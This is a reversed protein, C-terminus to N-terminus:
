RSGALDGYLDAGGPGANGRMGEGVVALLGVERDVEIPSCTATRWNWRWRRRGASGADAGTRGGAGSLLLEAPLQLRFDGAGRCQDRAVADLARAMVQVGSFAGGQGAGDFDAGRQKMSTM